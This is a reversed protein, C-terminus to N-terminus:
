ESAIPRLDKDLVLRAHLVVDRCEMSSAEPQQSDLWSLYMGVKVPLTLELVISDNVLEHGEMPFFLVIGQSKLIYNYSVGPVAQFYGCRRPEDDSSYFMKVEAYPIINEGAPCGYFEKDATLVMGEEYFITTAFDLGCYSSYEDYAKKINKSFPSFCNDNPYRIWHQKSYYPESIDFSPIFILNMGKRNNSLNWKATLEDSLLCEGPIFERYHAIHKTYENCGTIIFVSFLLITFFIYRKMKETSFVYFNSQFQFVM